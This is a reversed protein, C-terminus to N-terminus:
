DDISQPCTVPIKEGSSQRRKVSSMQTADSATSMVRVVKNDMWASVTVNGVPCDNPGGLQTPTMMQEAYRNTEEVIYDLTEPTFFLDFIKSPSDPIPEKPGVPQTFQQCPHDQITTSWEATSPDAILENTDWQNSYANNDLMCTHTQTDEHRTHKYTHTHTHSCTKMNPTDTNM